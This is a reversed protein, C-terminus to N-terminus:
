FPFQYLYEFLLAQNTDAELQVVFDYFHIQAKDKLYLIPNKFSKSIEFYFNNLTELKAELLFLIDVELNDTKNVKLLGSQKFHLVPAFDLFVEELVLESNINWYRFKEILKGSDQKKIKGLQELPDYSIVLKNLL